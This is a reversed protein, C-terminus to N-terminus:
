LDPGASRRARVVGLLPCAHSRGGRSTPGRPARTAVASSGYGGRAGRSRGKPASVSRSRPRVVPTAPGAADPTADAREGIGHLLLAGHLHRAPGHEDARAGGQGTQTKGGGCPRRRPAARPGAM